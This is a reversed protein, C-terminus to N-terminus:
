DETVTTYLYLPIPTLVANVRKREMTMIDTAMQLSFKPAGLIAFVNNVSAACSFACLCNVVKLIVWFSRLLL